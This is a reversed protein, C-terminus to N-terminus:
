RLQCYSSNRSVMKIPERMCNKSGLRQKSLGYLRSDLCPLDTKNRPSDPSIGNGNASQGHVLKLLLRTAASSDTAADSARQALRRVEDAVVAFGAGAEGARAAEVAANLALLNTQFAIEDITKVIKQTKLGSESISQMVRLMDATAAAAQAITRGSSEVLENAEGAQGANKRTMGTLAELSSATEELSAAQQNTSESLAGSSASLGASNTRVTDAEENIQNAARKVASSVFRSFWVAAMCSLVLFLIGIGINIRIVTKASEFIEEVNQSVAVRWGNVPVEAFGALKEVNRFRYHESGHSQQLMAESFTELGDLRKVNLELTFDPDPHNVILGTRDVMFAYGSDGSRYKAILSDFAKLRMVLGFVGAFRKGKDLVPALFWIVPEKSIQSQFAQSISTRTGSRTKQFVPRDSIDIGKFPSTGDLMSGAFLLGDADGLFVAEYDTGLQSLTDRLSTNLNEESQEDISIEAYFRIDMGGFNRYSTALSQAILM